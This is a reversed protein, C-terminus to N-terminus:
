HRQLYTLKIAVLLEKLHYMEWTVDYGGLSLREQFKGEIGISM